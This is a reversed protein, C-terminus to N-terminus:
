LRRSRFASHLDISPALLALLSAMLAGVLDPLSSNTSIGMTNCMSFDSVLFVLRGAFSYLIVGIM